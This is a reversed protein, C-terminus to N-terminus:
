ELRVYQGLGRDGYFCRWVYDQQRGDRETERVVMREVVSFPRGHEFRYKVLEEIQDLLKGGWYGYVDGRDKFPETDEELEFRITKLQPGLQKLDDLFGPYWYSLYDRGVEMTHVDTLLPFVASGDTSDFDAPDRGWTYNCFRVCRITSQADQTLGQWVEVVDNLDVWISLAFGDGTATLIVTGHTGLGELSIQLSSLRQTAPVRVISSMTKSCFRLDLSKLNPLNAPPANTNGEFYTYKLSLSELSQNGSIFLRLTETDAGRLDSGLTLSTLHDVQKLSDDWRADFSLSRITPTFLPHSFTYKSHNARLAKWKLGILQPFPLAFFRCSGLVLEVREGDYFERFDVKLTRIRKSHEPTALLEFVFHRECPDRESPLLRGREDADCTCCLYVPGWGSVDVIVDL